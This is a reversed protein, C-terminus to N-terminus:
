YVTGNEQWWGGQWQVQHKVNNNLIDGWQRLAGEGSSEISMNNLYRVMSRMNSYDWALHELLDYIMAGIPTYNAADTMAKVYATNVSCNLTDNNMDTPLLIKASHWSGLDAVCICNPMEKPHTIIENDCRLLQKNLTDLPKSKPKKWSHSHALLGYYVPSVLESRITKNGDYESVLNRIKKSNEIFKRIDTSRLTLKCEFAAVVGAALYEKCSLLQKPYEPSLVLIDIQPGCKGEENIIRGKTVIHFYDPIWMELIHKWNEEGQDGATGPDESSKRTVRLYESQIEKNARNLFEVLDHSM